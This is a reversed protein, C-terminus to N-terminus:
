REKAVEPFGIFILNENFKLVKSPFSVWSKSLRDLSYIYQQSIENIM